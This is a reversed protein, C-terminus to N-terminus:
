TMSLQTLCYVFTRACGRLDQVATSDVKQARRHMEEMFATLDNLHGALEDTSKSWDSFELSVPIELSRQIRPHIKRDTPLMDLICQKAKKYAASPQYEPAEALFLKEWEAFLSGTIEPEGPLNRLSIFDFRPSIFTERERRRESKLTDPPLVFVDDHAEDEEQEHEEEEEEEESDELDFQFPKERKSRPGLVRIFDGPISVLQGKLEECWPALFDWKAPSDVDMVLPESAELRQRKRDPEEG